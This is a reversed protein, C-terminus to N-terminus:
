VGVTPASQYGLGFRLRVNRNIVVGYRNHSHDVFTGGNMTNITNTTPASFLPVGFNTWPLVQIPLM